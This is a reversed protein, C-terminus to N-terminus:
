RRLIAPLAEHLGPPLTSDASPNGTEPSGGAFIEAEPSSQQSPKLKSLELVAKLAHAHNHSLAPDELIRRLDLELDGLM